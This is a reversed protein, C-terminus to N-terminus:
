EESTKPSYRFGHRLSQRYNEYAAADVGDSNLLLQTKEALQKKTIEVGREDLLKGSLIQIQIIARRFLVKALLAQIKAELLEEETELVEQNDISGVTFRELQTDLLNQYFGVVKEHNAVSSHTSKVSHLATKIGNSVETEMSKLGMEAQKVELKVAEMEHRARGSVLFPVRLELGVAWSAFDGRELDDM